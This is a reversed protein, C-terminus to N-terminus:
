PPRLVNLEPIWACDMAGPRSLEYNYLVLSKSIVTGLPHVVPGAHGARSGDDPGLVSAANEERRYRCFVERASKDAHWIWQASLTGWAHLQEPDRWPCCDRKQPVAPYWDGDPDSRGTWFPYPETACMWKGNSITGDAAIM